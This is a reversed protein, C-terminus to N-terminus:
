EAAIPEFPFLPRRRHLYTLRSLDATTAGPTNVRIFTKCVERYAAVPAHVGKAVLIQFAAPDLDCSRLQQLSFPPTRLSTLMITMGHASEVIATQGMHYSKRAGHRVQTETFTGTHISRVTFRDNVPAGHRDDTKGGLRMPITAGVGARIAQQVSEPDYLCVFVRNLRMRHMAHALVTGDAPSGGGVNDGIDLLCVPPSAHTAMELAREVGILDPLFGNRHEIIHNSLDDALTMALARDNDTVVIVAPGMEEVDAYPFGLVVSNSLVKENELQQDTRSYLEKCPSQSTSQREINIIVPPWSAAQTPRVEKRLTRAMLTAAELGRTRQDLHPNTRYAITANCADIMRQSVSAHLDLTCVIPIEPGFRNRLLSLWHGDFDPYNESVAQAMRRSWCAMSNDPAM